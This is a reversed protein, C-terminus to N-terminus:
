AWDANKAMAFHINKACHATYLKICAMNCQATPLTYSSVPWIVEKTPALRGAPLDRRLSDHYLRM